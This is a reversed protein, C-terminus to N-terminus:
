GGNSDDVHKMSDTVQAIVLRTRSVRDYSEDDMNNLLDIMNCKLEDCLNEIHYETLECIGNEEEVKM